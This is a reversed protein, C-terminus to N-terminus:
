SSVPAVSVVVFYIFNKYFTIDTPHLFFFTMLFRAASIKNQGFSLINEVLRTILDFYVAKISM